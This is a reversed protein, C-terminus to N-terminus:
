NKIVKEVAKFGNSDQIEILYIGQNNDSFDLSYNNSNINEIDKIKQGLLSFVQIKDIGSPAFMDMRYNTASSVPNPYATFGEISEDPVSLSEGTINLFPAEIPANDKTPIRFQGNVVDEVTLVLTIIKNGSFQAQVFSTIDINEIDNLVNDGPCDFTAIASAGYAPQTNWTIGNETWTDDNSEFVSITTTGTEIVRVDWFNLTANSISTFGSLDFKLWTRREFNLDGQGNKVRNVSSGDYNTDGNTGGRVYTDESVTLKTQAKVSTNLAFVAILTIKFYLKKM